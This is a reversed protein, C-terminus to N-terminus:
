KLPVLYVAHGAAFKKSYVGNNLKVYRLNGNDFEAVYTYSSDFTATITEATRGQTSYMPDIINQLMYMYLDNESDYLETVFAVDNDIEVKKLSKFTHSNDWEAATNSVTMDWSSTTFANDFKAMEAKYFKGGQYEYNLIVDSLVQAEAMVDQGAYYVNTKEGSRTLFNTGDVFPTGTSTAEPFQYTYYAFDDIGMGMLAYLEGKMESKGISRFNRVAGSANHMEFSQLCFSVDVNNEDCVRKLIQVTSFFDCALGQARYLYVDSSLRDAQCAEIYGRIYSEYAEGLTSVGVAEPDTNSAPKYVAFRDFVNSIPLLNLHIYLNDSIEMEKAAQKIARYLAGISQTRKYTPEDTIRVGYFNSLGKYQELVSKAYEVLDEQTEFALGEGVIPADSVYKEFREDTVIIRDIGAETAADWCRKCESTAWDGGQFGATGTLMLVNFGADKYTEYGEKTRQDANFNESIGDVTFIGNMPGSYAFFDFEQARTSYDPLVPHNDDTTVTSGSFSCSSFMFASALFMSSIVLASAKKFKRRKM